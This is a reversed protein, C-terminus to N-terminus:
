DTETPPCPISGLVARLLGPFRRDLEDKRLTNRLVTGERRTMILGAERLVKFHHTATSKAVPVDLAGCPMGDEGTHLQWVIRLRCPDSLAHLVQPLQLDAMRPHTPERM